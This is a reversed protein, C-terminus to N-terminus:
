TDLEYYYLTGTESDYAALTFNYSYRDFLASDDAPDQSASSRDRFYYYGQAVEPILPADDEDLALREVAQAVNETMPLPHWCDGDMEGELTQRDEADFTVVTFASGDGHFGGHSDEQRTVTGQSLDLGLCDMGGTADLIERLGEALQRSQCSSLALLLALALGGLLITRIRQKM